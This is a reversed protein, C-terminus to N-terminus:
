DNREGTPKSALGRVTDLTDAEAATKDRRWRLIRPFRVAVGSQHRASVNIAEFGLEFVRIPEVSRVPGFREVTHQRIWRDMEAIEDNTLGSYAKAFPVLKRDAGAGDWVAFTYDTLLNARKGSGPQAYILVCDVTYPDVKWKWWDGVRRGVGYASDRRKLMLGEVQRERSTERLRALQEWSTAPIVGSIRLRDTGSGVIRELTARREALPRPRLDTGDAELVDYAVFAAPIDKMLKASVQKRGIRKQLPGFGMPRGAAADWALVEGDLVTGDPLRAGAAAIEPFRETVLEEGRSWLFVQGARKVLQGRIGDWKWEAQWAEAPGLDREIEAVGGELGSALFFPYPTSASADAVSASAGGAEGSILREYMAASAQWTGMLRHEIEASPRGSVEAIARVVLTRSVGVRFAGTMLKCLVFVEHQSLEAWWAVVRERQAAEDMGRLEELRQVWAALALDTDGAGSMGGRGAAVLLSITEASDGVASYCDEFLWAEVGAVEMAWRRLAPGEVLRKLKQGTLFYVAWAADEPTADRLYSAIAAVKANTSTTADIAEFLDAFARM